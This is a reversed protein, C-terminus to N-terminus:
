PVAMWKQFRNLISSFSTWGARSAEERWASSRGPWGLLSGPRVEAKIARREDRGAGPCSLLARVAPQSQRCVAIKVLDPCGAGRRSGADKIYFPFGGVRRLSCREGSRIGSPGETRSVRLSSRPVVLTRPNGTGIAPLGRYELRGAASVSCRLTMPHYPTAFELNSPILSM